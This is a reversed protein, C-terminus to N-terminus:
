GTILTSGHTEGLVRDSYINKKKQMLAAKFNEFRKHNINLM